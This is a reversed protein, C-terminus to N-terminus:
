FSLREGSAQETRNTNSLDRLQEGQAAGDVGPPGFDVGEHGGADGVGFSPEEPFQPEESVDMPPNEAHMTQKTQAAANGRAPGQGAREGALPHMSARPDLTASPWRSAVRLARSAHPTCGYAARGLGRGGWRFGLGGPLRPPIWGPEGLIRVHAERSMRGRTMRTVLLQAADLVLPRVARPVPHHRAALGGQGEHLGCGNTSRDFGGCCTPISATLLPYLASRYFRGYYQMWGRVVPNIM